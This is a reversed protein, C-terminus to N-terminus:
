ARIVFRRETRQTGTDLELFFDGEWEPLLDLEVAHTGKPLHISRWTHLARHQADKMVPSIEQQEPVTVTIRLRTPHYAVQIKNLEAHRVVPLERLRVRERFRRFLIALLLISLTILLVTRILTLQDM